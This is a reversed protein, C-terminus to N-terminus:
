DAVPDELAEEGHQGVPDVAEFARDTSVRAVADHSQEACGDRVFVM